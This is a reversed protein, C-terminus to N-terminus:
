HVALLCICVMVLYLKVCTWCCKSKGTIHCNSFCIDFSRGRCVFISRLIGLIISNTYCAIIFGGISGMAMMGEVGLNLSGSKETIVEGTTGFLLPTGMRISYYLFTIITDM